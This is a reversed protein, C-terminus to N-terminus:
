RYYETLRLSRHFDPSKKKRFFTTDEKCREAFRVSSIQESKYRLSLRFWALYFLFPLGCVVSQRRNIFSFAFLVSGPKTQKHHSCYPEFRHGEAQLASARGASSHERVRNVPITVGVLISSTNGGHFPSTKVAQGLLRFSLYLYPLSSLPLPPRVRVLSRGPIFRGSYGALSRRWLPQPSPIQVM